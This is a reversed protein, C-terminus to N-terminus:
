YYLKLLKSINKIIKYKIIILKLSNLKINIFIYVNKTELGLGLMAYGLLNCKRTFDLVSYDNSIVAPEAYPLLQRFIM